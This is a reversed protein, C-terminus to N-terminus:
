VASHVTVIPITANLIAERATSGFFAELLMNRGHTGMVVFAYGQEAERYISCSSALPDEEIKYECPVGHKRFHATKQELAKVSDTRLDALIEDLNMPAWGSVTSSDLIITRYSEGLCHILVAAAGIRMALSLAYNEAPRSYKGLDTAVLIKLQRRGPHNWDREPVMPGIVM